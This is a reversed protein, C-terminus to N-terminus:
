AVKSGQAQFPAKVRNCASAAFQEFHPAARPPVGTREQMVARVQFYVPAVDRVDGEGLCAGGILAPPNVVPNAIRERQGVLVTTEVGHQQEIYELM